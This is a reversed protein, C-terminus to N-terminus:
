RGVPFGGTVFEGAEYDVVIEDFGIM